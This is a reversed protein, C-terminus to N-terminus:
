DWETPAKARARADCQAAVKCGLLLGACGSAGLRSSVAPPSQASVHFPVSPNSGPGPDYLLTANPQALTGRETRRIRIRPRQIIKRSNVTARDKRGGQARVSAADSKGPNRAPQRASMVACMETIVDGADWLSSGPEHM